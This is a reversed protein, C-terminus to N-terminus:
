ERVMSNRLRGLPGVEVEITDGPKMWEKAARGLIVGPPTGTSIVDGPELRLFQSIHSILRAVPFIMDATNSDQRLDGNLWSRVRLTQPDPIEDATVLYPGLPLFRDLTKGLLWQSSLYQVDRASVDNANCYGLVSDLAEAESVYHTTHGIVVALEAEYDIQVVNPPLPVDDGSAALANGFKSFVVPNEPVAKGSEAAHERYNLGICLLKGPQAVCPGLRLTDEGRLWVAGPQDAQTALTALAPLADQGAVMFAVPDSAPLDLKLAQAAAAVDIVGHTTKIGLRLVDGEWYNLIYM